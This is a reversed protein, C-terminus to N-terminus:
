VLHEITQALGDGPWGSSWLGGLMLDGGFGFRAYELLRVFDIQAQVVHDGGYLRCQEVQEALMEVHRHGFQKAAALLAIAHRHEGEEEKSTLALARVPGVEGTFAGYVVPIVQKMLGRQRRLGNGTQGLRRMRAVAEIIELELAAYH